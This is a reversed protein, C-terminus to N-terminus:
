PSKGSHNIPQVALAIHIVCMPEFGITMSFPFKAEHDLPLSQPSQIRWDPNSERRPRKNNILIKCTKLISILLCIYGM